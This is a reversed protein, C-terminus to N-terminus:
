HGWVGDQWVNQPSACLQCAVRGVQAKCVAAMSLAYSGTMHHSLANGRHTVSMEFFSPRIIIDGGTPQGHGAQGRDQLRDTALTPHM